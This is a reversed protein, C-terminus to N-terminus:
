TYELSASDQKPSSVAFTNDLRKITCAGHAVGLLTQCMRIGKEPLLQSDSSHPTRPLIQLDPDTEVCCICVGFFTLGNVLYSTQHSHALLGTLKLLFASLATRKSSTAGNHFRGYTCVALRIWRKDM